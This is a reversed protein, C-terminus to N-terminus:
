MENPGTEAFTAAVPPEQGEEVARLKDQLNLLRTGLDRNYLESPDAVLLGWGRTQLLFYNQETQHRLQPDDMLSAARKWADVALEVQGRRARRDDEDGADVARALGRADRLDGLRQAIFAAAHQKRRSVGEAGSGHPPPPAPARPPPPPAGPGGGARGWGGGLLLVLFLSGFWM